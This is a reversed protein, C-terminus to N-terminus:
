ENSNREKWHLKRHCNSCLVRCKAIEQLIRPISYKGDVMARISRDKESPDIHHFDITAIHSEGCIECSLGVRYENWWKQSRARRLKSGRRANAKCRERFEEDNAYRERLYERNRQKDRETINPMLYERSASILRKLSITIRIHLIDFVCFPSRRIDVAM